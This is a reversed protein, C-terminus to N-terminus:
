MKLTVAMQQLQSITKDDDCNRQLNSKVAKIFDESALLRNILGIDQIFNEILNWDDRMLEKEKKEGIRAFLDNDGNYREYIELKQQTIM